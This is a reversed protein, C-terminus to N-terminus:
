LGTSRVVDDRYPKTILVKSCVAIRKYMADSSYWQLLQILASAFGSFLRSWKTTKSIKDCASSIYTTSELDSKSTDCSGFALAEVVPLVKQSIPNCAAM